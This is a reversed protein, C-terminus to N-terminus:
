SFFLVKPGKVEGKMHFDNDLHSNKKRYVVTQFVGLFRHMVQPLQLFFSSPLDTPVILKYSGHCQLWFNSGSLQKKCARLWKALKNMAATIRDDTILKHSDYFDLIEMAINKVQWILYCMLFWCEMLTSLIPFALSHIKM